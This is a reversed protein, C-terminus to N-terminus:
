AKITRRTGWNDEWRINGAATMWAGWFDGNEVFNALRKNAITRSGLCANNDADRGAYIRITATNQTTTM